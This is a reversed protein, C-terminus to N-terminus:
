ISAPRTPANASVPMWAAITQPEDEGSGFYMSNGPTMGQHMVYEFLRRKREGYTLERAALAIPLNHTDITPEIEGARRQDVLWTTIKVRDRDDLKDLARLASGVVRYAGGARSSTVKVGDVAGVVKAETRWIPCESKAM